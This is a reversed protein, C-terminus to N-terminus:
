KTEKVNYIKVMEIKFLEIDKLTDCENKISQLSLSVEKSTLLTKECFEHFTKM